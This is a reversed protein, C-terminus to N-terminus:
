KKNDMRDVREGNKRCGPRSRTALAFSSLIAIRMLLKVYISQPRLCFQSKVRVHFKSYLLNENWGVFCREWVSCPWLMEDINNNMSLWRRSIACLNQVSNLRDAACRMSRSILERHWSFDDEIERNTMGDIECSPLSTRCCKKQQQAPSILAGSINRSSM